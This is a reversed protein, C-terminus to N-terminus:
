EPKAWFLTPNYTFLFQNSKKIPNDVTSILQVYTVVKGKEATETNYESVLPTELKYLNKAMYNELYVEKIQTQQRNWNADPNLILTKGSILRERVEEIGLLEGKENMAYADFSPDIWIWKELESSYVMNIVHCDPDTTDKPYCTVYRSKIGLSLYCENLVMALGRCNLGRGEKKCVAIMNLANKVEPNGNMGDHPILYHLWHMLNLIRSLESGTGAISDLKLEKRIKVLNPNDSSQYAFKPIYSKDNNDYKAATKLISLKSKEYKIQTLASDKGNLLIVFNFVSDKPNINATISDIDTYFTVKKSETLHIDPKIEPSITWVKKFLRKDERIDVQKSNANITIIKKQAKISNITIVSLFLILFVSKM